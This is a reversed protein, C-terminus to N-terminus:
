LPPCNIQFVRCCYAPNNLCANKDQGPRTTTINAATSIRAGAFVL